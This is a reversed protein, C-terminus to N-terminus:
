EASSSFEKEELEGEKNVALITIKRKADELLTNCYRVLEVGEAYLKLSDDLAVGEKELEAAIKELRRVADEFSLEKKEM